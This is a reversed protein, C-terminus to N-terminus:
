MARFRPPEIGHSRMYSIAAGRHHTVHDDILAVVQRRTGRMGFIDITEALQQASLAAVTSRTYDYCATVFSKLEAKSVPKAGLDFTPQAGNLFNQSIGASASALHIIQERFSMASEHPKFDLLDDPMKDVVELTFQKGNEWKASFEEMTTQASLNAQLGLGIMLVFALTFVKRIKEM